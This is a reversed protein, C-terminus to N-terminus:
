NLNNRDLIKELLGETSLDTNIINNETIRSSAYAEVYGKQEASVIQPYGEFVEDSTMHLQRYKIEKNTVNM